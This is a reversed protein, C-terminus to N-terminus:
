LDVQSSVRQRTLKPNKNCVATQVRSKERHNRSLIQSPGPCPVLSPQLQEKLHSILFAYSTSLLSDISIRLRARPSHCHCIIRHSAKGHVINKYCMELAFHDRNTPLSGREGQRRTSTEQGDYKPLMDLTGLVPISMVEEGWHISTHAQAHVPRYVALINVVRWCEDESLKAIRCYQCCFLKDVFM